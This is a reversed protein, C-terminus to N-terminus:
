PHISSHVAKRPAFYAATDPRPIPSIKMSIPHPTSRKKTLPGPPVPRSTALGAMAYLCIEFKAHGAISLSQVTAPWSANANQRWPFTLSLHTSHLRLVFKHPTHTKKGSQDGIARSGFGVPSRRLTSHELCRFSLQSGRNGRLKPFKIESFMGLAKSQSRHPFYEPVKGYM